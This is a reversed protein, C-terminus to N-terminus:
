GTPEFVTNRLSDFLSDINGIDSMDYIVTASADDDAVNIINDHICNCHRFCNSLFLKCYCAEM